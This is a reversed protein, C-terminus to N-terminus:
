TTINIHRSCHIHHDSDVIVAEVGQLQNIFHLGVEVGMVIVPTTLADALEASSCFITVSSLGKAPMGTKPDITHSYKQGEVVVYKEYDGSTAVSLDNIEFQSFLRNKAEPDAIGISWPQGSAQQGWATLDGAANVVGGQSSCRWMAQKARDAAYGKGIGGFGIRMGAERLCVTHALPDLLINRYNVLRTAVMAEHPLPLAAMNTDFNWFRRDIGGYSIDFAGQTLASIKCARQILSFVEPTVKVPALGAARNILATASDDSFTTLLREIRQVEQIGEAVARRCESLTGAVATFEFRNGMLKLTETHSHM